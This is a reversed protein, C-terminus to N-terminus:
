CWRSLIYFIVVYDRKMHFWKQLYQLGSYVLMILPIIIPYLYRGQVATKGGYYLWITFVHLVCIILAYIFWKKELVPTELKKIFLASFIGVLSLLLFMKLVLYWFGGVKFGMWGTHFYFSDLMSDFLGLRLIKEGAASVSGAFDQLVGFIV